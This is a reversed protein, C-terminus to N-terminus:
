KRSGSGAFIPPPPERYLERGFVTLIIATHEPAKRM